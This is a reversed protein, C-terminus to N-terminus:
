YFEIKPHIYKDILTIIKDRDIPKSIYDICGAQLCQERDEAFSFATQAIIPINKNIRLIEQTAQLGDLDPLHIDMLIIDPPDVGIAMQVAKRGESVHSVVPGFPELITQLFRYSDTNDEVILIKKGKWNTSSFGARIPENEPYNEFASIRPLTFSFVTGKGLKSSVSIEGGMLEVLAQSISLGLGTGNLPKQIITDAQRFRQFIIKKDEESIGSGTDEVFFTLMGPNDERYGFEVKGQDTFKLANDILNSLVQRLRVKDAIMTSNSVNSSKSLFLQVKNGNLNYNHNEYFVFLDDLLEDIDLKTKKIVIQQAEIKSIDVIDNILNLLHNGNRIIIDVFEEKEAASSEEDKLLEAFGLIGNMPTRIEHSMNALFASKLRDAAEAKEKAKLLRKQEIELLKKVTEETKLSNRLRGLLSAISLTTLVNLFLYDFVFVQATETANTIIATEPIVNLEVASFIGTVLIINILLSNLSATFGLMISVFVPVVFLFSYGSGPNALLLINALGIFYVLVVLFIKRTNISLIRASFYIFYLLALPIVDFLIYGTLDAKVLNFISFFVALSGFVLSIDLIHKFIRNRWFDIEDSLPLHLESLIARDQGFLETLREVLGKM